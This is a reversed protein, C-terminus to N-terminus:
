EGGEAPFERRLRRTERWCEGAFRALKTVHLILPIM